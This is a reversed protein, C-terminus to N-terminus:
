APEHLSGLVATLAALTGTRLTPQPVPAFHPSHNPFTPGGEPFGGVGWYCSPVGLARPVVTFDESATVPEMVEVNEEGLQEILAARVVETVAEDNETLPFRDRVEIEPARPSRSATCEARIIREAGAILHELVEESYARFNLLLTARDPIINATSGAQVSGVTVVGFDGPATERSVLTQLRLVISSALVVPDVGLHPMSGHSGAGFVTVRASAATSMVPGPAIAVRGSAPSALVHQGLCVDPRPIADALGAEVMARAGAAVEEGPQFLAVYTGQWDKRHEALLRAAGLGATVHMDHGCAHMRGAEASAYPVGSEETVPLADMDARFLATRGPGNELVGVVGGGIEQVAYGARELQGRIVGRTREEQMSLEPHAHLDEYLPLQWAAADELAALLAPTLATM